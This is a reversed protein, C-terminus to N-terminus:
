AMSNIPFEGNLDSAHAWDQTIKKCKICYWGCRTPTLLKGCGCNYEHLHLLTQRKRLNTVQDKTWIFNSM